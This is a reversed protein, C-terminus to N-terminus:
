KPSFSAFYVVTQKSGGVSQAIDKLCIFTTKSVNVNNTVFTLQQVGVVAYYTIKTPILVSYM